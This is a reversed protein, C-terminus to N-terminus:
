RREIKVDIWWGDPSTLLSNDDLGLLSRSFTQRPDNTGIRMATTLVLMVFDTRMIEGSASDIVIQWGSIDKDCEEETEPDTWVIRTM